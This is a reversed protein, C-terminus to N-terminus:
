LGAIIGIITAKCAIISIVDVIGVARTIHVSVILHTTKYPEVGDARDEASNDVGVASAGWGTIGINTRESAQILAIDIWAEPVRICRTQEIAKAGIGSCDIHISLGRGLHLLM